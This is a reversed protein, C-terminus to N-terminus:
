SEFFDANPHLLGTGGDAGDEVVRLHFDKAAPLAAPQFPARRSNPFVRAKFNARIGFGRYDQKAAFASVGM